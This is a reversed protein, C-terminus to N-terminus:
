ELVRDSDRSVIVDRVADKPAHEYVGAAELFRLRMEFFREADQGVRRFRAQIERARMVVEAVSQKHSNGVVWKVGPLDAIEQPARQAYCGTM